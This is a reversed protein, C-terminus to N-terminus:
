NLSPEPSTIKGGSGFIELVLPYLSEEISRSQLVFLAFCSKRRSSWMKKTTRQPCPLSCSDASGKMFSCHAYSSGAPWRGDEGELLGSDLFQTPSPSTRVTLDHGDALGTTRERCGLGPTEFWLSVLAMDLCPHSVEETKRGLVSTDKRSHQGTGM